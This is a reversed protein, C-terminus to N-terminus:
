SMSLSTVLWRERLVRATITAVFVELHTAATSKTPVSTLKAIRSLTEKAVVSDGQAIAPCFDTEVKAPKTIDRAPSM